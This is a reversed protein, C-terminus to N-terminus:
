FARAGASPSPALWRGFVMGIALRAIMLLYFYRLANRLPYQSALVLGLLFAGLLLAYWVRGFRMASNVCYGGVFLVACLYLYFVPGFAWAEGFASFPIYWAIRQENLAKAAQFGDIANVTPLLSLIKYDLAYAHPIALEVSSATIVLGSSINFIASLLFTGGTITADLYQPVYALGLYTHTRAELSYALLVIALVACVSAPVRRHTLYFSAGAVIMYVSTMRSGEALALLIAAVIPFLAFFFLYPERSGLSFIAIGILALVVFRFTGAILMGVPDRYYIENLDKIMGYGRYAWVTEWGLTAWVFIAAFTAYVIVGIAIPVPIPLTLESSADPLRDRGYFALYVALSLLGCATVVHSSFLPSDPDILTRMPGLDVSGNDQVALLYTLCNTGCFAAILRGSLAATGPFAAIAFAALMIVVLAM